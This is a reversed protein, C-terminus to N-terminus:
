EMHARKRWSVHCKEHRRKCTRRWSYVPYDTEAQGEFHNKPSGRWRATSGWASISWHCTLVAIHAVLFHPVVLPPFSTLFFILHLLQAHNQTLKNTSSSQTLVKFIGARCPFTIHFVPFLYILHSLLGDNNPTGHKSWCIKNSIGRRFCIRTSELQWFLQKLHPFGRHSQCSSDKFSFYLTMEFGQKKHNSIVLQTEVRILRSSNMGVRIKPSHSLGGPWLVLLALTQSFLFRCCVPVTLGNISTSVCSRGCNNSWRSVSFVPERSKWAGLKLVYSPFMVPTGPSPQLVLQM